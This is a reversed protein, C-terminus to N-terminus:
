PGLVPELEGLSLDLGAQFPVTWRTDIVDMIGHEFDFSCDGVKWVTGEKGNGFNRVEKRWYELDSVSQSRHYLDLRLASLGSKPNVWAGTSMTRTTKFCPRLKLEKMMTWTLAVGTRKSKPARRSGRHDRRVVPDMVAIPAGDRIIPSPVPSRSNEAIDSRGIAGDAIDNGPDGDGGGGPTRSSSGGSVTAIEPVVGDLHRDWLREDGDVKRRWM